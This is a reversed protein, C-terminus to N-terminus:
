SSWHIARAPAYWPSGSGPTAAPQKSKVSAMPNFAELKVYVERGPPSLKEMLVVPTNGVLELVSRHPGAVSEPLPPSPFLANM